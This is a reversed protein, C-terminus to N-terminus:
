LDIPRPRLIPTEDVNAIQRPDHFADTRALGAGAVGTFEDTRMNLWLEALDHQM